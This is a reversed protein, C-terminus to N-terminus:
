APTPFINGDIFSVTKPIVVSKLDCFSFASYGIRELGDPLAISKLNAGDFASEGISVLGSPLEAFPLEIGEFASDGIAVIDDLITTEKCGAVLTNSATEIVANCNDRSDYVPNEEAVVMTTVSSCGAFAGSGINTVSQPIHVTQLATCGCFAKHGIRELGAPFKISKIQKCYLFVYDNIGTVPYLNEGIRVSYAIVAEVIENNECRSVSATKGDENLLYTIESVTILEMKLFDKFNIICNFLIYRAM